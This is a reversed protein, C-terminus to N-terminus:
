GGVFYFFLSLFFVLLSGVRWGEWAGDGVRVGCVREGCEGVVVLGFCGFVGM